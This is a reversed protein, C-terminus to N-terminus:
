ESEGNGMGHNSGGDGGLQTIYLMEKVSNTKYFGWSKWGVSNNTKYFFLLFQSKLYFLIAFFLVKPGSQSTQQTDM